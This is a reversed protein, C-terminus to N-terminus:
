HLDGLVRGVLLEIRARVERVSKARSSIGESSAELLEALQRAETRAVGACAGVLAVVDEVYVAHVTELEAGSLRNSADLLERAHPSAHVLEFFAGYKSVLSAAVARVPTTAGAARRKAEEQMDVAVAISVAAFAAEKNAFYAYLTAKAVGAAEAIAEMSTKRVGYAAFLKTAATLIGRRTTSDREVPAKAPTKTGKKTM